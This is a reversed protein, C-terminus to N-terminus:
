MLRERKQLGNLTNQVIEEQNPRYNEFPFVITKARERQEAKLKLNREWSKLISECQKQIYESLDKSPIDIIKTKETIIDILVLRCQIRKGLQLFYHGYLLLQLSYEEATKSELNFNDLDSVSKIEEIVIFEDKEYVIDARGSIIFKWGQVETHLKVLVERQFTSETKERNKQFIQHIETGKSARIRLPISSNFFKRESSIFILDKISIHFEKHDKIIKM